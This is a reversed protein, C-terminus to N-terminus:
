VSSLTLKTHCSALKASPSVIAAREEDSLHADPDELLDHKQSVAIAAVAPPSAADSFGKKENSGHESPPSEAM